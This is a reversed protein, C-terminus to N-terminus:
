TAHEQAQGQWQVLVETILRTKLQKPKHQLIAIPEPHLSGDSDIPPLTPIPTIQAGLTKKLCSVHFVPHILCNLPLALKYAVLGLKQLVQFPSYYRRSLKNFGKSRLTLQRYPQLRM